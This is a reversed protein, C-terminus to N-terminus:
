KRLRYRMWRSRIRDCLSPYVVLVIGGVALGVAWGALVDTPFHKGVYVRSFGIALPVLWLAKRRWGAYLFLTAAAANSAHSSPFSSGSRKDTTFDAPRAKWVGSDQYRTGPLSHHPRVRGAIEKIQYCTLDSVAICLAMGVVVALTVRRSWLGMAALAICSVWLVAENSFLPMVADFLGNQMDQNMWAFLALEWDPTHFHM